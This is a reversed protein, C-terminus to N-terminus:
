SRVELLAILDALNRIVYVIGRWDTHFKQEANTLTKSDGDKIEILYTRNGKALVADPAGGGVTAISLASWGFSRAAALIAAHNGDVRGSHGRRLM